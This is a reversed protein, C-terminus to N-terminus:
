SVAHAGFAACRDLAREVCTDVLLSDLCPRHVFGAGAAGDLFKLLPAFYGDVDVIACPKAHFGLQTWTLMEFLEDLTGVGGPLSVFADSLSAMLSKREHMSAVVRLDNVSMHALERNVLSTPIVGTVRGGEALAADAVVGMLGVHAGGYVLTLGRRAIAQGLAAAVREYEAKAGMASGCFVCVSRVRCEKGAGPESRALLM